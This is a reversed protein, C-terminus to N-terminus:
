VAEPKKEKPPIIGSQVMALIGLVIGQKLPPLENIMLAVRIARESGKLNAIKIIDM